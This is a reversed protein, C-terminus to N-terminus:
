LARLAWCCWPLNQAPLKLRSTQRLCMPRWKKSSPVLMAQVRLKHRTQSKDDTPALELASAIGAGRSTTHRKSLEVQKDKEANELAKILLSM